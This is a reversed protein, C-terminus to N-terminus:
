RDAPMLKKLEKAVADGLALYGEETLHLWDTLLKGDKETLVGAEMPDLVAAGNKEAAQKLAKSYETLTAGCSNATTWPNVIENRGLRQRHLPLIVLIKATPNKEQVLRFWLNLAGCFTTDTQDAFTGLPINKGYDNTGAELVIVSYPSYDMTGKELRRVMSYPSYAGYGLTAGTKGRNTGVIGTLQAVRLPFPVETRKGSWDFGWTISDGVFLVRQQTYRHGGAMVPFYVPSRLIKKGSRVYARVAYEVTKGDSPLSCSTHDASVEKAKKWAGGSPKRYVLYGDAGPVVTWTLTNRSGEELATIVATGPYCTVTRAEAYESYVKKKSITIYSRISYVYTKGPEATKDWFMRYASGAKGLPEWKKETDTQLKRYIRFGEAGNEATWSLFVKGSAAEAELVPASITRRVAMGKEERDGELYTNGNQLLACVTYTYLHGMGATRDTYSGATTKLVDALKEYEGKDTKRYIRYGSAGAQRSWRITVAEGDVVADELVVAPVALAASIGKMDAPGTTKKGSLVAQAKVTYTYVVGKQVNRDAYSLGASAKQVAVRKYKGASGAKRYVIYSSAGRVSKWSVTIRSYEGYAERLEVQPLAPEAAAIGPCAPCLIAWIIALFLLRSNMKLIINM